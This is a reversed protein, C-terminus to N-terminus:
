RGPKASPCTKLGQAYLTAGQDMTDRGQKIVNNGSGMLGEAGQQVAVLDNMEKGKIVMRQGQNFQTWGDQMMKAADKLEASKQALVPTAAMLAALAGVLGLVVMKRLCGNIRM